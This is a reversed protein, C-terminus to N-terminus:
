YIVWHEVKYEETEPDFVWATPMLRHDGDIDFFEGNWFDWGFNTFWKALLEIDEKTAEPALAAAVLEAYDYKTIM